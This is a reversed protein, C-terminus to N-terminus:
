SDTSEGFLFDNNSTNLEYSYCTHKAMNEAKQTFIYCYFIRKENLPTCFVRANTPSEALSISLSRVVPKYPNALNSPDYVLSVQILSINFVHAKTKTTSKEGFSETAFYASNGDRFLFKLHHNGTWEAELSFVSSFIPFNPDNMNCVDVILRFRDNRNVMLLQNDDFCTYGCRSSLTSKFTQLKLAFLSLLDVKENYFSLTAADEFKPLELRYDFGSLQKHM